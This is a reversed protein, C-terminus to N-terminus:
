AKPSSKMDDLIFWYEYLRPDTKKLYTQVFPEAEQM